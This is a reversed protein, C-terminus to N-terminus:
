PEEVLAVFDEMTSVMNTRIIPDTLMRPIDLPMSFIRYTVKVRDTEVQELLWSGTLIIRTVGKREPALKENIKSKFSIVMRQSDCSSIRYEMFHDQDSVPWPIDHYSYEYWHTTDRQPYLKFESVHDQWKMAKAQNQLLRLGAYISSNYYFVGKVERARKEEEGPIDIWREYLTIDGSRKVLLFDDPDNSQASSLQQILMLGLFMVTFAYM